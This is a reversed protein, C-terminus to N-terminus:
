ILLVPRESPVCNIFLDLWSLFMDQSTVFMTAPPAGEKLSSPLRVCPFIMLLSIAHGSASAYLLLTHTQGREGPTIGWLSKQEM